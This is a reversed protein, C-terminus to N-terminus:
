RLKGNLHDCTTNTGSCGSTYANHCTQNSTSGCNADNWCDAFANTSGDCTIGNECGGDSFGSCLDNYCGMLSCSEDFGGGRPRAVLEALTLEQELAALEADPLVVSGDEALAIKSVNFQKSM